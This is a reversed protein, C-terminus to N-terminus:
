KGQEVKMALCLCAFILLLLPLLLLLLLHYCDRSAVISMEFFYLGLFGAWKAKWTKKRKSLRLDFDTLIIRKMVKLLGKVPETFKGHPSAVPIHMQYDVIGGEEERRGGARGGERREKM